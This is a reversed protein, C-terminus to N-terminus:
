NYIVVTTGSWINNYIWQASPYSMRLCGHSLSHGLENESALITHFFYGGWIQTCYKARYDTDLSSRKFGTTRFEGTITETGPAGTVCSWYYNLSWNGSSGRFVGVKHTSRDVAILWQTGSGYWKIRDLMAQKDPPMPPVYTTAEFTFHQASLGTDDSLILGSGNVPAAGFGIVKSSDMASVLKFGGDGAYEVFWRQNMNGNKTYQLIRTGAVAVAKEADLAKGNACNTIVYSGDSMRTFNFKQNGGGNFKWMDLQSGNQSSSRPIDVVQGSDVLSRIIYSGNTIPAVSRQVWQQNEEGTFGWTGVNTGASSGSRTVDLVKGTEVNKFVYAGNKISVTWQAKASVPGSVQVANGNGNDALYKGSCTAQLTYVNDTGGLQQVWWKQAFSANNTWIEINANESKSAGTVDLAMGQNVVSHFSYLGVPMLSTVKELVFEKGDVSDADGMPETSINAGRLGSATEYSLALGNKKNVFSVSGDDGKTASWLQNDAGTWSDYFIVNSGPVLSNGDVDLVKDTYVSVIQYYGDQYEFRYMQWMNNASTWLQANAGNEKSAGSVDLQCSPDVKAKMFFVVENDIFDECPAVNAPISLLSFKQAVGENSTWLSINTGPSASGKAVDLSLGEYLGSRLFLSGDENKVAIWKSARGEASSSQVVNAGSAGRQGEVSLYRGSAKNKLLLYNGSHSITWAQSEKAKSRGTQVNAGEEASSEFIDVVPHGSIQSYVVYEGDEVADSNDAALRDLRDYVSQNSVITWQQNAGGLANYACVNAGSVPAAKAADLVLSNNAANVISYSGNDSPVLIWKQNSQGANLYASVNAGSVPAAKAADLVLSENAACAISYTGDENIFFLWEQNAGGLSTYASVNAGSAPNEKAADLVLSDNASCYVRCAGVQELAPYITFMGLSKSGTYRGGKAAISVEYSGVAVPREREGNYLVEYDEGENLSEGLVSVSVEPALSSGTYNKLTMTMVTKSASLDDAGAIKWLQNKGGHSACVTVNAGSVAEAGKVDLVLGSNAASMIEFGGDESPALVWKQNMGGNSLYASVNAGPVPNVGAADIVLSPNAVSCITYYGDDTLRFGWAQNEGGNGKYVSVNSGSYPPNKAADLFLSDNSVARVSYAKSSTLGADFLSFEGVLVEGSYGSGEVARATVTYVGAESPAGLDSGYYLLYDRGDILSRGGLRISVEPLLQSGTVNRNMGSTIVDAASLDVSTARTGLSEESVNQTVASSADGSGSVDENTARDAALSSEANRSAPFPDAFVASTNFLVLCIAVCILLCAKKEM